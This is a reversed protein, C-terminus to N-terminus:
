NPHKVPCLSWFESSFADLRRFVSQKELMADAPEHNYLQTYDTMHMHICMKHLKTYHRQSKPHAQQASILSNILCVCILM